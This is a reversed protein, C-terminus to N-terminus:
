GVVSKLLRMQQPLCLTKLDYREVICQRAKQRLRNYADRTELASIVRESVEDPKFFDVLL